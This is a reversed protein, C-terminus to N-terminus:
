KKKLQEIVSTGNAYKDIINKDKDLLFFTPTAAIYYAEVPPSSWKKFDCHHIFNPYKTVAEQYATADDDLSIALVKVSSFSQLAEHLKPLEQMCHPCWSAWFVVVTYDSELQSLETEKGSSDKFVISPAKKGPTLTAYGELRKELETKQKEDTTCQQVEATYKQEIYQLVKEQAIEKFGLTLYRIAFQKLQPSSSFTNIIVDCSKIFGATMEEESFQLDPDLYYQLYGLIADTYLPTQLLSSDTTNIASWFRNHIEYKQIRFDDTPRTAYLPTNAVMRAAWTNPHATVFLEQQKKYRQRIAQLQQEAQLVLADKLSTSPYNALLASIARIKTLLEEQKQRFEYWFQNEVSASFVPKWQKQTADVTFAILPEKGNVIVDIAPTPVRNGKDLTYAQLRFVGNTTVPLKITTPTEQVPAAYVVQIGQDNYGQLQMDILGVPFVFQVKVSLSDQEQAQGVVSFLIIYLVFLYRM